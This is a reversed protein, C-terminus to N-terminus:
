AAKTTTTAKKATTTTKKKTTTATTTTKKTTTTTTTTKTTTPQPGAGCPANGCCAARPKATLDTKKLISNFGGYPLFPAADSCLKGITGTYQTLTVAKGAKLFPLYGACDNAKSGFVEFGVQTGNSFTSAYSVCEESLVYDHYGVLEAAQFHNNKLAVGMGQKHAEDALFKNFDLWANYDADCKKDIFYEKTSGSKCAGCNAGTTAEFGTCYSDREYGQVNDPEVLDCGQAKAFPYIVDKIIRRVEPDSPNVWLEDTYPAEYSYGLSGAVNKGTATKAGPFLPAWKTRRAVWTGAEFYCAVKAGWSKIEAITAPSAEIDIDYILLEAKTGNAYVDPAVRPVAALDIQWQWQFTQPPTYWGNGRSQLHDQPESPSNQAPVASAVALLSLLAIFSTM